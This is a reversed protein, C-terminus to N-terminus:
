ACLRRQNAELVKAMFTSAAVSLGPVGRLIEHWQEPTITSLKTIWEGARPGGRQVADLALDVLTVSRGGEFRGAMGRGCWADVDAPIGTDRLGSGLASGHDFSPALCLDNGRYLM